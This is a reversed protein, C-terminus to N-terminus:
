LSNYEAEIMDELEQGTPLVLYRKSSTGAFMSRIEASYSIVLYCGEKSSKVEVYVKYDNQDKGFGAISTFWQDLVVDAATQSQALLEADTNHLGVFNKVAEDVAHGLAIALAKQAEPEKRDLLIKLALIRQIPTFKSM